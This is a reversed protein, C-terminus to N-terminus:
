TKDCNVGEQKLMLKMARRRARTLKMRISDPKCGLQLAIEADTHGLIYKGCLLIQDPESLSPWIKQLSTKRERLILIDELCDDSSLIENGQQDEIDCHRAQIHNQRKLYNIATNRITSVIYGALICREMPRLIEVKKILKELSDQVIDECASYSQVYRQAVAFMLRNYDHYLQLLFEKDSPSCPATYLFAIM